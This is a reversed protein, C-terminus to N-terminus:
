RRKRRRPEREVADLLDALSMELTAAIRELNRLSVNRLGREVTGYYARDFGCLGAFKEQSVGTEERFRRCVRGFRLLIDEKKSMGSTQAGGARVVM